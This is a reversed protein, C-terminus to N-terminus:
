DRDARGAVANPDVGFQALREMYRMVARHGQEVAAWAREDALGYSIRVRGEDDVLIHGKKALEAVKRRVTERPLGTKDAILRRSISGRIQDPPTKTQMIAAGPANTAMFPRMTADSVYLLVLLSDMDVDGYFQRVCHILDLTLEIGAFNIPRIHHPVRDTPVSM